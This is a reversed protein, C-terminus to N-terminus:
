HPDGLAVSANLDLHFSAFADDDPDVLVSLRAYNVVPVTVYATFPDSADPYVVMEYTTHKSFSDGEPAVWHNTSLASAFTDSFSAESWAPSSKHIDNICTVVESVSVLFSTTPVAGTYRYKVVYYGVAQVEEETHMNPGYYGILHSEARMEGAATVETMATAVSTGSGPYRVYETTAGIRTSDRVWQAKAPSLLLICFTCVAVLSFVFRVVKNM